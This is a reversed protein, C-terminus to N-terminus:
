SALRNLDPARRLSSTANGSAGDSLGSRLPPWSLADAGESGREGRLAGNSPSLFERLREMPYARVRALIRWTTREVVAEEIAREEPPLDVRQLKQVFRVVHVLEHTLVYLLLARLDLPRPLARAIELLRDDQLCIRYVEYRHVIHTGVRRVFDYCVLHALADERVEEPRLDRLTKVEYHIREGERGSLVYFGWVLQEAQRRAREIIPFHERDFTRRMRLDM